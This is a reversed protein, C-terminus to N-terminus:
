GGPAGVPVYLVPESFGDTDDDVALGEPSQQPRSASPSLLYARVDAPTAAPNTELYLAVAGTVHPTAMSTGSFVGYVGGPLTSRICTGPAMIDVEPGYNSYNAFSDDRDSACTAAAGGGPEGNFDTLASVTIVEDYNAPFHNAADDRENGAAVIVPIGALVVNCVARHLADNACTTEPADGGLSMNVVDITDANAVVWDLGCILSAYSGVGNDNLVKVAYLRAGPAVGVVGIDNDRAGITGAVHTGHGDADGTGQSTCAKGGAVTLDPHPAIGTDLVAVDVAIAGGDQAIDARANEDVAIRTIGTPLVQAPGSAAPQQQQRRRRKRRRKKRKKGEAEVRQTTEVRRNPSVIAGPIRELARKIGPPVDAAFGNVVRGFRHSPRIDLSRLVGAADVDQPLVVVVDQTEENARASQDQARASEVDLLPSADDAVLAVILLALLARALLSTLRSATAASDSSRCEFKGM